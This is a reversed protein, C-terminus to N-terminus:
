ARVKRPRATETNGLPSWDEDHDLVDNEQRGRRVAKPWGADDVNTFEKWTIIGPREGADGTFSSSSPPSPRNAGGQHRPCNFFQEQKKRCDMCHGSVCALRHGEVPHGARGSYLVKKPCLLSDSFDAM